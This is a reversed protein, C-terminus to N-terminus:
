LALAVDRGLGRASQAGNRPTRVGIRLQSNHVELNGPACNHVQPEISRMAGSHRPSHSLVRREPAANKNQGVRKWGTMGLLRSAADRLICPGRQRPTRLQMRAAAALSDGKSARKARVEPQRHAITRVGKRTMALPAFCDMEGSTSVHIAEDSREECHRFLYCIAPHIFAAYDALRMADRLRHPQLPPNDRVNAIPALRLRPLARLPALPGPM